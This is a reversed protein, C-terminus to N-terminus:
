GEYKARDYINVSYARGSTFFFEYVNDADKWAEFTTIYNLTDINEKIKLTNEDDFCEDYLKNVYPLENSTAILANQKRHLEEVYEKIFDTLDLM